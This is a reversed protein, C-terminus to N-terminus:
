GPPPTPATGAAALAAAAAPPLGVRPAEDRLQPLLAQAVAEGVARHAAAPWHIGDPNLEDAHPRVLPWVAVSAFGHDAALQLQLAERAAHQPHRHGYYASRHSTPGLVVGAARGWTLGRVHDLLQSFLRAFEGAPTRSVRGGTARVVWPYASRLATRVRRRLGSPRLYPVVAEVSPPVGGPAHDFSGVGVVLADAHALVDFQVHRDKTVTRLAERVTTGPRAVVTVAVPRGLATGLCRAAVNPYLAAHDPLQPGAADTFSTSDGIVVLLLPDVGPAVVAAGAPDVASRPTTM